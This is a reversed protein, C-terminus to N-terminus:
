DEVPRVCWPQGYKGPQGDAQLCFRDLIGGAYTGFLRGLAKTDPSGDKKEPAMETLAAALDAHVHAGHEKVFADRLTHARSGFAEHWAQIVVRLATKRSDVQRLAARGMNCDAAGAWVLAARVTRSWEEFSGYESIGMQPKGAVVHARMLTLVAAVLEGRHERVWGLLDPHKWGTIEEPNEVKPALRCPIVRRPMDGVLHINNGTVLWVTFHPLTRTESAGLVRDSYSTTTLLSAFVGNGFVRTVNDVCVVADGALLVAM